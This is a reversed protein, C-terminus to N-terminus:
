YNSSHHMGQHCHASTKIAMHMNNTLSQGINISLILNNYMRTYNYNMLTCSKCFTRVIYIDSKPTIGKLPVCYHLECTMNPVYKASVTILLSPIDVDDSFGYTDM